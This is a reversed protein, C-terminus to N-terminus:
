MTAEFAVRAIKRSRWVCPCLGNHLGKMQKILWARRTVQGVEGFGGRSFAVSKV